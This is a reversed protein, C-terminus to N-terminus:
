IRNTGNYEGNKFMFVFNKSGDSYFGEYLGVM